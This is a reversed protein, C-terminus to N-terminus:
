VVSKRDGEGGSLATQGTTGTEGSTGPTCVSNYKARSIPGFYGVAPAVGNAAQWAAVSAQTIPGFYGTSGGSFTFDGTGTLYDQLATVDAGSVGLTLDRTFAYCAAGATGGQLALVQAQLAAIQDLLSQITEDTTAASATPLLLVAGTLWLAVALALGIAVTRKPLSISKSM